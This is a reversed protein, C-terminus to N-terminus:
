YHYLFKPDFLEVIMNNGLKDYVSINSQIQSIKKRLQQLSNEVIYIRFVVQKENGVMSPLLEDGENFRQMVHIVSLDTKIKEIGNISSIKGSKLLVWLTCACKGKLRFDNRQPIDDVGMSGILAFNILMIRHDFKNIANVIVHPAEGQLRFGPDYAYFKDNEVFFQINLVGNKIGLGKFMEIMKPHITKYYNETHKSPYIAAICVPSLNGQNKTTIRDAIASLFIEGDKFTYYAFIDDCTMYKETLFIQKRSNEVAFKVGAVLEDENNCITMGVGGGNDVPKILVPYEIKELDKAALSSDLEYTSIGNIGYQSLTHSFGDKRTLSEIIKETAYCPFELANCIKVYSPVLIDAVGVLVGDIHEKKAVQILGKIDFGDVEYHIKANKKAPSNLNPDVVITIIGLENASDVLTGTEPNGGLIMLRKGVLGSTNNNKQVNM